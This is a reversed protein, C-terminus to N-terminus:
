QTIQLGGAQDPGLFLGFGAPTPKQYIIGGFSTKKNTGPYLFHGTLTGKAPTLTISLGNVGSVTVKGKSSIALSGTVASAALDGGGLTFSAPGPTLPPSAYKAALLDVSMSFGAPYYDGGAAAPRIWDVLGDWDSDATSEFTINGAISGPNKKAYVPTFLTCTQGDVHLQGAATFATGDGLKGALHVAGKTTVSLTGYGPSQPLTPDTSSVVPMILTYAGARGPPITAANFKGLLGAAVSYASTGAASTVSITGSVGPPSQEISLAVNLTAASAGVTGNFSGYPTFLGNFSYHAGPLTLKGTLFGEPTVALTFLAANTGGIAGLGNYSGEVASFSLNITLARTASGTGGANSASITIAFSGSATPVGSVTGTSSDVTLGPPLGTANFSVPNNSATIQYNFAAGEAGTASLGSTIVPPAPLITVTLPETDTGGANGASITAAYTGAVVPNGSIVGTSSNVALGPPLGTAGFSTPENSGAIQYSFAVGSTGTVSFASTIATGPPTIVALSLGASGTGGANSASITVAFTGSVTPTGFISGSTKNVTLGTPLGTANFSTPSNSATIQYDFALGNTASATL